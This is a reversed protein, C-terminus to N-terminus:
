GRRRALRMTDTDPAIALVNDACAVHADLFLEETVNGIRGLLVGTDVEFFVVVNGDLRCTSRDWLWHRCKSRRGEVRDEQLVDAISAVGARGGDLLIGDGDNGVTTIEHGTSLHAIEMEKISSDYQRKVEKSQNRCSLRNGTGWERRKRGPRVLGM